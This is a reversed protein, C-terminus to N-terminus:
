FVIKKYVYLGVYMKYQYMPKLYQSIADQLSHIFINESEEIDNIVIARYETISEGNLGLMCEQSTLSSLQQDPLNSNNFFQGSSPGSGGGGIDIASSTQLNGGSSSRFLLSNNISNNNNYTEYIGTDGSIPIVHNAPFWGTIEEM